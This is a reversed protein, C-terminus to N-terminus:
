LLLPLCFLSTKLNYTKLEAPEICWKCQNIGNIFSTYGERFVKSCYNELTTGPSAAGAAGPSKCFHQNKPRM